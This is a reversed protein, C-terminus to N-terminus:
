DLDTPRALDRSRPPDFEIEQVMGLQEVISRRTGTLRRYADMSLLVHTPKGRDTIYVPGAEAARKAESSHQNFERASLTTISM